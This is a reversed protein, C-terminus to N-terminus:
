HRVNYIPASSIKQRERTLGAQRGQNRLRDSDIEADDVDDSRLRSFSPDLWEPKRDDAIRM